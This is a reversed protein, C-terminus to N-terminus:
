LTDLAVECGAGSPGPVWQHRHDVRCVCSGSRCLRLGLNRSSASERNQSLTGWGETAASADATLNIPSLTCRSGPRLLLQLGAQAGSSDESSPFRLLFVM